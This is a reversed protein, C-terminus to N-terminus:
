RVVNFAAARARDLFQKYSGNVFQTWDEFGLLGEELNRKQRYIAYAANANFQPDFLQERIRLRDPASWRPDFPDKLARVQFIGISEDWKDDMLNVDGIANARAVPNDGGAPDMGSEAIGIAIMIALDESRFGSNYLYQAVDDDEVYEFNVVPEPDTSDSRPLGWTDMPSPEPRGLAQNRRDLWSQLTPTAPAEAVAAPPPPPIDIMQDRIDPFVEMPDLRGLGFMTRLESAQGPKLERLRQAVARSQKETMEIM